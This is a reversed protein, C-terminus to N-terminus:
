FGSWAKQELICTAEKPDAAWHGSQSSLEKLQKQMGERPGWSLCGGVQYLFVQQQKQQVAAEGRATLSSLTLAVGPAQCGRDVARQTEPVKTSSEILRDEERLSTIIPINCVPQYSDKKDQHCV